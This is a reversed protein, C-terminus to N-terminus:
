HQQVFDLILRNVQEAAEMQVMHAQGSLIEVQATLGASHTAPIIADDSGWILLVPQRNEQVVGRLDLQQRGEKFLGAVLLRLAADVGELRKYKLMDELMQRNVLEPDSFLKVLQPKLANRSAAEVFGQLYDGNIEAGLGASGILSLSRVRQPALRATNLSVAGGMSHGVLHAVPVDLHDLLALLVGSLEDLDGHELQKSSEGHGPLDLAIVRRGAALAEHNFMWNNLDGGFGHVLVLPVGGEGREFYRILRGDLEVKQPKPGSDEEAGDGPVFASQFQEIVADIEAESAEGDVVIGLLAGVALTEDQRAIQRRLVGSFPAEVSSSIKDTEVDLVEDGKAIAQGEEKLWVDVRGETMSLGWKPMTLTHIQSM